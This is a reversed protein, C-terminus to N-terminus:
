FISIFCKVTWTVIMNTNVEGSLFLNLWPVLFYLNNTPQAHVPASLWPFDFWWFVDCSLTGSSLSGSSGTEPSLAMLLGDDYTHLAPYWLPLHRIFQCHSLLCDISLTNVQRFPIVTHTGLNLSTSFSLHFLGLTFLLFFISYSNLPSHRWNLLEQFNHLELAVLISM